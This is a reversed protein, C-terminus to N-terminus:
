LSGDKKGEKDFFILYKTGIEFPYDDESDTATKYKISTIIENSINTSFGREFNSFESRRIIRWDGNKNPEIFVYYEGCHANCELILYARKKDEWHKYIFERVQKEIQQCDKSPIDFNNFCDPIQGGFDYTSLDRDQFITETKPQLHVLYQTPISKDSSNWSLVILSCVAFLLLATLRHEINRFVIKRAMFKM